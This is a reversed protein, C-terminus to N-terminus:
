KKDTFFIMNKASKCERTMLRPTVNCWCVVVHFANDGDDAEQGRRCKGGRKRLLCLQKGNIFYFGMVQTRYVDGAAMFGGIAGIFAVMTVSCCLEANDSIEVVFFDALIAIIAYFGARPEVDVERGGGGALIVLSKETKDVLQFYAIGYADGLFVVVALLAVAHFSESGDGIHFAVLLRGFYGSGWGCGRPLVRYHGNGFLGCSAPSDAPPM